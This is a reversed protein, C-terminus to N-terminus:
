LAFTKGTEFASAALRFDAGIEAQVFASTGEVFVLVNEAIAGRIVASQPALFLIGATVYGESQGQRDQHRQHNQQRGQQQEDEPLHLPHLGLQATRSVFDIFLLLFRPCEGPPAALPSLLSPSLPRGGSAVLAEVPEALQVDIGADDHIEFVATLQGNTLLYFHM